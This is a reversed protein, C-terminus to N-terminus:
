LESARRDTVAGPIRALPEPLLDAVGACGSSVKAKSPEVGARSELLASVEQEWGAQGGNGLLELFGPKLIQDGSTLSLSSTM